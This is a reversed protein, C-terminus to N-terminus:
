RRPEFRTNEVYTDSKPMAALLALVRKALPLRANAEAESWATLCANVDRATQEDRPSVPTQKPTQEPKPTQETM